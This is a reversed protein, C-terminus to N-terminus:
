AAEKLVDKIIADIKSPCYSMTTGVPKIVGDIMFYVSYYAGPEYLSVMRQYIDKVRPDTLKFENLDIFVQTQTYVSYTREVRAYTSFDTVTALDDEDEESEEFVAEGKENFYVFSEIDEFSQVTSKEEEEEKSHEEAKARLEEESLKLGAMYRETAVRISEMHDLHDEKKIYLSILTHTLENHRVHEAVEEPTKYQAILGQMYDDLRKSRYASLEELYTEAHILETGDKAYAEVIEDRFLLDLEYKDDKGDLWNNVLAPASFFPPAGPIKIEMCVKFMTIIEAIPISEHSSVLVEDHISLMLRVKPLMVGDCDVLEDWGKEHIYDRMNLEAIKLMDAGFGQVPLNNGARIISAKKNEPYSPDLIEKFVRRRKFATEIYGNERIFKENKNVFNNIEPLGAYFDNITQMCFELEEQTYAPGFMSKALGYASMKYVVGFNRAKGKKREEASIAWIPKGTIISGIARHIDVTPDSELEILDMQRALYALIRLEVQKWDSSWLYHHKSDPLILKKMGDSYQHADSTRRGTAAGYQNMYFMVRDRLSTRQIRRYSGLNKLAKAYKQLIVLSPYRNNALDKGKVIVNGMLDVIDKYEKSKEDTDRKTGLEVIRKLAVNSTSPLGTKTRVEVPCRLVNYFIERKVDASNINKNIRHIKKFYDALTKVIYEENEILEVLLKKNTRMGYFENEATVYVMKSEEKFIYTQEKPLLSMHRKYVKIANATDPCAYYRVIDPTLVNFRINNKNKFVHELELYFNGDALQAESKLAHAGREKFVPNLIISSFMPDADIRLYTDELGHASCDSDWKKAYDSYGIYYKSEKWIGQIEFKGNYAIIVVDEPQNNVADLIERLFSIPLNYKFREQRFPYYTSDTESWSLVVGTIVDGGFMGTEVGTTELDIAKVKTDMHIFKDLRERAEEMSQVVVFDNEEIHDLPYKAKLYELTYFEADTSSNNNDITEHMINYVTYMSLNIPSISGNKDKSISIIDLTAEPTEYYETFYNGMKLVRQWKYGLNTDEKTSITLVTGQEMKIEQKTPANFLSAAQRTRVIEKIIGEDGLYMEKNKSYYAAVCNSTDIINYTTIDSLVDIRSFGTDDEYWVFSYTNNTSKLHVQGIRQM